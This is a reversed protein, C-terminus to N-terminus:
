QYNFNYLNFYCKEMCQQTPSYILSMEPFTIQLYTDFHRGKSRSFGLLFVKVNLSVCTPTPYICPLYPVLVYGTDAHRPRFRAEKWHLSRSATTVAGTSPEQWGYLSLGPNLEQSGYGLSARAVTPLSSASPCERDRGRLFSPCSFVCTLSTCLAM